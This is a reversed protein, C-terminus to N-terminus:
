YTDSKERVLMSHGKLHKMQMTGLFNRSKYDKLAANQTTFLAHKSNTSDTM